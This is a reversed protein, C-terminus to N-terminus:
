SHTLKYPLCQWASCSPWGLTHDAPSRGKTQELQGSKRSMSCSGLSVAPGFPREGTVGVSSWTM